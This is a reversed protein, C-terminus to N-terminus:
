SGRLKRWIYDPADPGVAFLLDLITVYPDFPAAIQPYEPYGAYDHYSLEIGAAAFKEPQIYARAAPGSLYSDGGLKRVLDILRDDKSGEPSLESARAFRREVSLWACIQQTLLIDLDALRTTRADTLLESLKPFYDAFHRCKGYSHRLSALHKRRWDQTDDIEVDAIRQDRGGRTPVTLWVSPGQHTKIRNRNRWDRITYQVDDLFVFVDVSHIIDFFGRWPIYSPQIIAVRVM